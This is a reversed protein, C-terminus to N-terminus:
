AAHKFEDKKYNKYGSSGSAITRIISGLKKLEDYNSILIFPSCRKGLAIIERKKNPTILIITTKSFLHKQFYIDILDDERAAFIVVVVKKGTINKISKTFADITDYLVVNDEPNKYIRIIDFLSKGYKTNGPNLYHIEM